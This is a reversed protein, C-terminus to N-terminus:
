AMLVKEATKPKVFEGVTLLAQTSSPCFSPHSVLPCEMPITALDASVTGGLAYYFPLFKALRCLYLM